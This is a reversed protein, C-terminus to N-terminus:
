CDTGINSVPYHLSKGPPRTFLEVGTGGVKAKVDGFITRHEYRPIPRLNRVANGFAAARAENYESSKGEGVGLMGARNGVIIMLYMHNIKGLSTQNTVYKQVLTKTRLARITRADLGTARRLREMAPDLTEDSKRSSTEKLGPLGRPIEPAVSMIPNLEAGPKGVMIRMNNIFDEQGTGAVDEPMNWMYDAIEDKIEEPTKFRLDPDYSEEDSPQLPKDLLPDHRSFDDGYEPVWPDNTRFSAQEALDQPDVAAEGAEIAAMQEPSYRKRLEELEEQTYPKFADSPIM